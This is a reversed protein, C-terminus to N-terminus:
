NGKRYIPPLSLKRMCSTKTFILNSLTHSHALVSRTWSCAWYYHECTNRDHNMTYILYVCPFKATSHVTWLFASTSPTEPVMWDRVNVCWNTDWLNLFSFLICVLIILFARLLCPMWLFWTSASAEGLALSCTQNVAGCNVLQLVGPLDNLRESRLRRM